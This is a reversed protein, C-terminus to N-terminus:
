WTAVLDPMGNLDYRSYILTDSLENTIPKRRHNKLTGELTYGLREPINRSRINDADCTITIRTVQLQKFAYHTIANIAETMFGKGSCSSRIWYGTEISPIHWLMHHYGCAGIFNGSLKDFIFLPLWPEESKKLIWNAVALRVQEESDQLSPKEKAWDMTEHLLDYSELIAENLIIGDNIEPPRIILRDTTIPMPFDLLTPKM